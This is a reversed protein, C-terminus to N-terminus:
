GGDTGIAGFEAIDLYDGLTGEWCTVELGAYQDDAFVLKYQDLEVEYGV